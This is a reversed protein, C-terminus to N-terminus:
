SHWLLDAVGNTCLNNPAAYEPCMKLHISVSGLKKAFAKTFKELGEGPCDGPETVSPLLDQTDTDYANAYSQRNRNEAKNAESVRNGHM